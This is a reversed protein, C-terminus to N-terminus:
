NVKGLRRERVRKRTFILGFVIESFTMPIHFMPGSLIISSPGSTARLKGVPHGAVRDIQLFRMFRLGFHGYAPAYKRRGVYLGWCYAARPKRYTPKGDACAANERSPLTEQRWIGRTKINRLLDPFRDM